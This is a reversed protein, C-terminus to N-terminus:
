RFREDILRIPKQRSEIGTQSALVGPDTLMVDVAVGIKERLIHRFTDGLDASSNSVEITVTMEDRGNHDRRVQCIYEGSFGPQDALMAGIGQPFVNIGRLKVMNDSRGLFGKMRRLNLDSPATDICMASVDHTNFRIIPYIDDKFLCTNVMDGTIGDMVPQGTDIDCIELYQADEMIYLGAKDPGQGAIAGTDGVGYWDYIDAGEWARALAVEDEQGMHGSIMRIPLDSGPKLGQEHAV